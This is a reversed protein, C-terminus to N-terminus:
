NYDYNSSDLDVLRYFMSDYKEFVFDVSSPEPEAPNHTIIMSM